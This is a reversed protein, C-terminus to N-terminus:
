PAAFDWNCFIKIDRFRAWNKLNAGFKQTHGRFTGLLLQDISINPRFHSRGQYRPPLARGGGGWLFWLIQYGMPSLILRQHKYNFTAWLAQKKAFVCIFLVIQDNYWFQHNILIGTLSLTILLNIDWQWNDRIFWGRTIFWGLFM